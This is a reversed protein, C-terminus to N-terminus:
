EGVVFHEDTDGPDTDQKPSRKQAPKQITLFDAASAGTYFGDDALKLKGSKVGRSIRMQAAKDNLGFREVLESLIAARPVQDSDGSRGISGAMAKPISPNSAANPEIQVKGSTLRRRWEVLIEGHVPLNEQGYETALEECLIQVDPERSYDGSSDLGLSEMLNKAQLNATRQNAEDWCRRTETVASMARSLEYRLEPALKRLWFPVDEGPEELLAMARILKSEMQAVGEPRQCLDLDSLLNAAEGITQSLQAVLCQANM